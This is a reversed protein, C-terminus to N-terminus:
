IDYVCPSAYETRVTDNGQDDIIIEIDGQCPTSRNANKVPYNRLFPWTDRPLSSLDKFLASSDEVCHQSLNTCRLLIGHENVLSLSERNPHSTGNASIIFARNQVNKYHYSLVNSDINKISGHHPAKVYSCELNSRKDRLFMRRHEEWQEKTSDSTLLVRTGRYEIGLAISFDNMEPFDNYIWEDGEIIKEIQGIMRRVPLYVVCSCADGYFLRLINERGHQQDVKEQNEKIFKMLHGLSYASTQFEPHSTTKGIKKIQERSKILYKKFSKFEAGFVPPIVLRKPM